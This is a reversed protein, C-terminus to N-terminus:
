TCQLHGVRLMVPTFINSASLCGCVHVCLPFSFHGFLFMLRRVSSPRLQIVCALGGRLPLFKWMGNRMEANSCSCPWSSGQTVKTYSATVDIQQLQKRFASRWFGERGSPQHGEPGHGRLQGGGRELWRSIDKAM